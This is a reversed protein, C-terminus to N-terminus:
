SNGLPRRRRILITFILLGLIIITALLYWNQQWWPIQTKLQIIVNGSGFDSAPVRAFNNGSQAEFVLSSIVRTGGIVSALVQTNYVYEGKSDTEGQSIVGTKPDIIRVQAGSVTSNQSNTVKLNITWYSYVTSQGNVKLVNITSNYATITTSDQAILSEIDANEITVNSNGFIQYSLHQPRQMNLLTVNPLFVDSPPNSITCNQEFNWYKIYPQNFGKITGNVSRAQIELSNVTTNSVMINPSGLAGLGMVSSANIFVSSSDRGNVLTFHSKYAVVKSFGQTDVLGNAATGNFYIRANNYAYAQNGLTSNLMAVTANGSVILQTAKSSKLVISANGSAALNTVTSSNFNLSADQAASVQLTLTSVVNAGTATSKNFLSLVRLDTLAIQATSEDYLTLGDVENPHQVRNILTASNGLLTENIVTSNTVYVTANNAQLANLSSDTSNITSHNFLSIIARTTTTQTSDLITINSNNANTSNFLSHFITASSNILTIGGKNGLTHAGNLHSIQVNSNDSATLGDIQSNKGSINFYSDTITWAANPTSLNAISVFAENVNIKRTNITSNKGILQSKASGIPYELTLNRLFGPEQLTTINTNELKLTANGEVIISGNVIVTSNVFTQISGSQIVLDSPYMIPNPDYTASCVPLKNIPLCFAALFCILVLMLVKLKKM